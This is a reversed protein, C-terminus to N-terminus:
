LAALAGEYNPEDKIDPVLETYLVNHNEDLVVVSRAHLGKLPGDLLELGYNKGFEGDRFDSLTVVNEIGEAGCFRKQAFPLDRSICLVTTNELSSAKKNFERVSAACTGTDISPFINLILKKGKYNDLSVTGLDANVLSFDAAQSGKVPLDGSTHLPNGGLTVNAM